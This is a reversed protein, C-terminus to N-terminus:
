FSQEGFRYCSELRRVPIIILRPDMARGFSIYSFKLSAQGIVRHMGQADWSGCGKGRSGLM